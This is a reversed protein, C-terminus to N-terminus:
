IFLSLSFNQNCKKLARYAKFAEYENPQSNDLIEDAPSLMELDFLTYLYAAVAKEDKESLNEFLKMREEPLMAPALLASIKIFDKEELPVMLLLQSLQENALALGNEENGIRKLVDFLTVKDLFEKYRLILDFSAIKVFDAYAKKSLEEGYLEPKKLIEESSIKNERYRNMNNAAVLPNDNLLNYKKLDVSEGEKIKQVLELVSAIKENEITVSSKPYVASHEILEGLLKYRPTKYEFSRHEQGLYAASLADLLKEYDKKYKRSRFSGIISYYSFHLLSAVYVILLLIAIWVAVPLSPLTMGFFAPAISQTSVFAYVYWGIVVILLFVVATYRKLYM